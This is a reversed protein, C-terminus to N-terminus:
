GSDLRVWPISRTDLSAAANPHCGSTGRPYGKSPTHPSLWSGPSRTCRGPPPPPLSAKPEPNGKGVQFPPLSKQQSLAQLGVPAFCASAKLIPIGASGLIWREVARQIPLNDPIDLRIGAQCPEQAQLKRRERKELGKEKCQQQERSAWEWHSERQLQSLLEGMGKGQMAAAKQFGLGLPIGM